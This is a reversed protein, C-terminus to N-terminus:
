KISNKVKVFKKLNTNKVNEKYEPTNRYLLAYEFLQHYEMASDIKKNDGTKCAKKLEEESRVYNAFLYNYNHKALEKHKKTFKM